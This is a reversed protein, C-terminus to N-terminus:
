IFGTKLKNQNASIHEFADLHFSVSSYCNVKIIQVYIQPRQCVLAIILHTHFSLLEFYM